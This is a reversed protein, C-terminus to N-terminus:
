CHQRNENQYNHPNWNRLGRLNLLRSDTSHPSSVLSLPEQLWSNEGTHNFGPPSAYRSHAQKTDAHQWNQIYSFFSFFIWIIDIHQSFAGRFCFILSDIIDWPSYESPRQMYFGVWHICILQLWRKLGGHTSPTMVTVCLSFETEEKMLQNYPCQVLCRSRERERERKTLGHCCSKAGWIPPYNKRKLHCNM